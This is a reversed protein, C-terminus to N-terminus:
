YRIVPKQFRLDVLVPVRGKMRFRALLIQLTSVTAFINSNQAIVIDSDAIRARFSAEDERTIGTVRTDDGWADLFALAQLVLTEESSGKDWPKELGLNVVPYMGPYSAALGLIIGSRDVFFLENGILLYAVGKRLEFDLRLTDPFIKSVRVDRFEPHSALLQERLANGPFFLLHRNLVNENVVVRVQPNTIVIKRIVFLRSSVLYFIIGVVIASLLGGLIRRNKRVFM